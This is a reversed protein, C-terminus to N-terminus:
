FGSIYYIYYLPTSDDYGALYGVARLTITGQPLFVTGNNSAIRITTGTAVDANHTPTTGDTTYFLHAGATPTSLSVSLFNVVQYGGGPPTATLSGVKPTFSGTGAASWFSFPFVAFAGVPALCVLLIVLFHKTTKVLREMSLLELKHSHGFM